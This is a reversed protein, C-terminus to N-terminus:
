AASRQKMTFDRHLKSHCSQCLWVVSLPKDYDVHHGHLRETNFCGPAMCCPSKWLKGGRAANDASIHAARIDKNREIYARKAANTREKGHPTETYRERAEIRHPLNARCREYERYHERNKAYNARVSAKVCDKCVARGAYFDHNAKQAGCQKCHKM